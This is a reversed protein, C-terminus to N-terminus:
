LKRVRLNYPFKMMQEFDLIAVAPSNVRAFHAQKTWDYHEAQAAAMVVVTLGRFQKAILMPHRSNEKAEKCATRWYRAMPCPLGMIFADIMLERVNKVEIYWYDTLVHGDPHVACVDGAQWQLDKGKRRGLTARGGSMASRWFLDERRGRSVWRSLCVCIKREFSAGKRKGGGPKM